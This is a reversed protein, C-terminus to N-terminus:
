WADYAATSGPFVPSVDTFARDRTSFVDNSGAPVISLTLKKFAM